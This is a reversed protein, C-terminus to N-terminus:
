HSLLLTIIQSRNDQTLHINVSVLWLGDSESILLEETWILCYKSLYLGALMQNSWTCKTFPIGKIQLFYQSLCWLFFLYFLCILVYMFSRRWYVTFVWYLEKLEQVFRCKARSFGSGTDWHIHSVWCSGLDWGPVTGRYNIPPIHPALVSSMNINSM